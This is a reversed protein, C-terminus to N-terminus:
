QAVTAMTGTHINWCWLYYSACSAQNQIPLSTAMNYIQERTTINTEQYKTPALTQHYACINFVETTLLTGPDNFLHLLVRLYGECAHCLMWSKHGVGQIGPHQKGATDGVTDVDVPTGV